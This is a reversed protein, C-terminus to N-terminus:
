RADSTRPYDVSRFPRHWGPIVKKDIIGLLKKIKAIWLCCYRGVYIKGFNFSINGLLLYRPNKKIVLVSKEWLLDSCNQYCFVVTARMYKCHAWAAMHFNMTRVLLQFTIIRCLFLCFQATGDCIYTHLYTLYQWSDLLIDPQYRKLNCKWIACILYYMKSFIWSSTGLSFNQRKFCRSWM